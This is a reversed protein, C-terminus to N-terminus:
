AGHADEVGACNQYGIKDCEPFLVDADVNPAHVHWMCQKHCAREWKYSVNACHEIMEVSFSQHVDLSSHFSVRLATEQM